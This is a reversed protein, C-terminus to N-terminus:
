DADQETVVVERPERYTYEINGTAAASQLTAAKRPRVLVSVQLGPDGRFNFRQGGRAEATGTLRYRANVMGETIERGISAIDAREFEIVVMRKREDEEEVWEDSIVKYPVSLAVGRPLAVPSTTAEPSASEAVPSTPEPQKCGSFLLPLAAILLLKKM